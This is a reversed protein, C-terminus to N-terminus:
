VSARFLAFCVIGSNGCHNRTLNLPLAGLNGAVAGSSTDTSGAAQAGAQNVCTNGFVPNGFGIVNAEAAGVPLLAAGAVAGLVAARAGTRGSVGGSSTVGM